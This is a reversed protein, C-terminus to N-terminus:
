NITLFEVVGTNGRLYHKRIQWYTQQCNHLTPSNATPPSLSTTVAPSLAAIPKKKLSKNTEGLVLLFCALAQDFLTTHTLHM